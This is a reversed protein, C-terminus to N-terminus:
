PSRGPAALRVRHAHNIISKTLKGITPRRRRWWVFRLSHPSAPSGPPASCRTRRGRRADAALPRYWSTTSRLGADVVSLIAVSVVLGLLLGAWLLRRRRQWRRTM